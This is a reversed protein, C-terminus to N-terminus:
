GNRASASTSPSSRQLRRVSTGLRDALTEVKTIDPEAAIRAVIAAVREATPDPPPLKRRLFDEVIRLMEAEDAADAMARQPVDAGFVDDAAVSRDTITSVASGLIPRFCGPRFTVGFVRGTGELVRFVHGRAVGHVGAPADNVFSLHVNPEPVILQRYPPQGQLDWAVFWYRSVFPALEPGSRRVLSAPLGVVCWRGRPRRTWGLGDGNPSPYADRENM